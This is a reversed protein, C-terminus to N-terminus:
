RVSWARGAPEISVIFGEGTEVTAAEGEDFIAADRTGLTLRADTTSLITPAAAVFVAIASGNALIDGEQVLEVRHDAESRRTMVNLDAVAGGPLIAMANRDAAFRFPRHGPVLTREGDDLKLIVGDGELVIMTRDVGEFLSFEGDSEVTAMSIRWVFDDLTADAPSVAIQRTEGGGNKWRTSPYDTASLHKM